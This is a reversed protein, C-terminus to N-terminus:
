NPWCTALAVGTDASAISRAGTSTLILTGCKDGVMIGNRTARLVYEVADNVVDDENFSIRYYPSADGRPVEQFPLAPRDGDGDVYRGNNTYYREMFQSLQLLATRAEARRSKALYEQYNPYAIAALIGIVAVVIMLEILSFGRHNRNNRMTIGTRRTHPKNM